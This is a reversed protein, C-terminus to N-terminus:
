SKATGPRATPAPSVPWGAVSGTFQRMALTLTREWGNPLQKLRAERAALGTAILKETEMRVHAQLAHVVTEDDAATPDTPVPIPAGALFHLQQPLPLPGMGFYLPLLYKEGLLRVILQGLPTQRVTDGDVIQRYTEDIGIIAMPVIAAQARIASRVFGYRGDWYLKYRDRTPALAERAGGPCTYTLEGRSLLRHAVIPTGECVGMGILVERVPPVVFLVHDSFSRLPRGAIEHAGLQLFPLEHGFLGHNAVILMGQRSRLGEFGTYIPRFYPRMLRAFALLRAYARPDLQWDHRDPHYPM